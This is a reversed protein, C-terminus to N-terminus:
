QVFFLGPPYHIGNVIVSEIRQQFAQILILSAQPLMVGRGRTRHRDVADGSVQSSDLPTLDQVELSPEDAADEDSMYIEGDDFIITYGTDLDEPETLVCFEPDLEDGCLRLSIDEYSRSRRLDRRLNSTRLVRHVNGPDTAKILARRGHVMDDHVTLLNCTHEDASYGNLQMCKSSKSKGPGNTVRGVRNKVGSVRNEVGSTVGGVRDEVGGVRDEVGGVKNTWEEEPSADRIDLRKIQAASGGSKSRMRFLKPRQEVHPAPGSNPNVAESKTRKFEERPDTTPTTTIGLDTHCQTRGYM